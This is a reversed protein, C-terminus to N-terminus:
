ARVKQIDHVQTRPLEVIKVSKEIDQPAVIKVFQHDTHGTEAHGEELKQDQYLLMIDDDFVENLRFFRWRERYTDYHPFVEGGTETRLDKAVDTMIRYILPSPYNTFIKRQYEVSTKKLPNRNMRFGDRKWDLFSREFHKKFYERITLEKGTLKRM